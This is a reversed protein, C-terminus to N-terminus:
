RLVEKLGEYDPKEDYNFPRALSLFEKIYEPANPLATKKEVIEDFSANSWPLGCQLDLMLYGICELDDIRGPQRAQMMRISSYLDTGIPNSLAKSPIHKGKYHIYKQCLGFDIIKINEDNKSKFM